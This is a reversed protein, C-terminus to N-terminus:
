RYTAALVIHMVAGCPITGVNGQCADELEIRAAGAQLARLVADTMEHGGDRCAHDGCPLSFLAPASDVVVLRVHKPDGANSGPRAKGVQSLGEPVEDGTRNTVGRREDIELRLTALAPVAERLRPAADERRRREAFRQAAESNRSRSYM